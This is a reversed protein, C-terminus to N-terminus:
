LGWTLIFEPIVKVFAEMCKCLTLLAERKTRHVWTHGGYVSELQLSQARSNHGRRSLACVCVLSWMPVCIYLYPSRSHMYM